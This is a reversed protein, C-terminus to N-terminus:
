CPGTMRFRSSVKISSPMSTRPWCFGMDPDLREKDTSQSWPKIHSARLAAAIECGTVACASKWLNGVDARFQGQGFRADILAKRTTRDKIRKKIQELDAVLSARDITLDGTATRPLQELSRIINRDSLRNFGNRFSQQLHLLRKYWPLDTVEMADRALDV